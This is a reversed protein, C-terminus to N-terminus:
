SVAVVVASATTDTHTISVHWRGVGLRAALEAARGRVLLLPAGGAAREVEVDVWGFAGLGVGLAKMTAEKVAFRAALSPTPNALGAAYSREHATFVRAALAPRRALIRAFRPVDVSDLGVGVLVGSM